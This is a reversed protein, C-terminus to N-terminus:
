DAFDELAVKSEVNQNPNQPNVVVAIGPGKQIPWAGSHLRGPFRSQANDKENCFECRLTYNSQRESPVIAYHREFNAISNTDHTHYLGSRRDFPTITISSRAVSGKISEQSSTRRSM